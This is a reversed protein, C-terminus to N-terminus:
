PNTESETTTKSENKPIENATPTESNMVSSTDNADSNTSVTEKQKESMRLDNTATNTSIKETQNRFSKSFGFVFFLTLGLFGVTIRTVMHILFQREFLYPVVFALIDTVVGGVGVNLAANINLM